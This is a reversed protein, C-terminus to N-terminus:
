GGGGVTAVAREIAAGHDDLEREIEAAVAGDKLLALNAHINLASIGAAARVLLTASVADSRATRNGSQAVPVALEAVRRCLRVTRLPVDTAGLLADRRAAARVLKEEDTTQPLALAASFAHYAAADADALELAQRRLTDAEEAIARMQPTVDAYRPRDITLRCVMAVLAAGMAAAVAAAAGGGPTSEGSALADLFGRLGADRLPQEAHVHDTM